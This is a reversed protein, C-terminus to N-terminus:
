RKGRDFGPSTGSGVESRVGKARASGEFKRGCRPCSRADDSLKRDCGGCYRHVSVSLDPGAGLCTALTLLKNLGPASNM